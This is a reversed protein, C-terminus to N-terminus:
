FTNLQNAFERIIFGSTEEYLTAIQVWEPALNTLKIVECV